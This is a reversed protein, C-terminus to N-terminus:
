PRLVEKLHAHPPSRKFGSPQRSPTAQNQWNELCSVLHSWLPQASEAIRVILRRSHKVVVAGVKLLYLQFRKLDWCGGVSDELENRCVTALNFALLALLMTAENEKFRPSSLSVGIAENFEGLRDEFTGRRRYHAVLTEGDRSTEDWNTILFFYRPLLNLQGSIPDPKDVIVLILRQAHKWPKAKYPGLEIVTEYGGKPPRGAPRWLYPEALADLESNTKLRGAFRRKKETLADMIEGSTYGADLRYDVHKAIEHAKEDVKDVFRGIGNATHVQGQRLLAHIFGNGLRFGERTSDYDGAVCLSAVLPHYVTKRYYGNYTAGQQKGHAEIPFSDIDITARRVRKGGSAHVHRKISESLGDRLAELNGRGDTLLNILRSQTPQSALREGLVQDGSRNWVAAQFAPDHALRDVDDQASYGLALAFLRERILEDLGYRVRDARRPDEMREVIAQVIGLRSEAERLLLVGADSTIRLDTAQVKVSRNFTPEFLNNQVEGM